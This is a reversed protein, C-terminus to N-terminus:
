CSKYFGKLDDIETETQRERERDRNREREREGGRERERVWFNIKESLGMEAVKSLNM